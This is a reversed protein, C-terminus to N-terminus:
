REVTDDLASLCCRKVIACVASAERENVSLLDHMAHSTLAFLVDVIERGPGAVACNRGTLREILVAIATRRRENRAALAQAFEPDNAAAAYLRGIASESCWFACFIEVLRELAARPDAMGMAEPIRGLGGERACEDFVAELLAHRSGFQNYVTLRTVGAAKAVMDISVPESSAGALLRKASAVVRARKEAAAAERVPSVYGRKPLPSSTKM